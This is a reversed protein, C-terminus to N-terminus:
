ISNSYISGGMYNIPQKLLAVRILIYSIISPNLQCPWVDSDEQPYSKVTNQQSKPCDPSIYALTTKLEYCVGVSLM